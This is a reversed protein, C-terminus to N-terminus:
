SDHCGSWCAASTPNRVLILLELLGSCDQGKGMAEHQQLLLLKNAFAAPNSSHTHQMISAAAQFAAAAVPTRHDMLRTLLVPLLESCRLQLCCLYYKDTVAPSFLTDLSAM